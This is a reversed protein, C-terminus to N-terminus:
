ASLMSARDFLKVSMHAAILVLQSSPVGSGSFHLAWNPYSAGLRVHDSYAHANWSYDITYVTVLWALPGKIQTQILGLM